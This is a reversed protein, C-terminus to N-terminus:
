ITKRSSSLINDVVEQRFTILKSRLRDEGVEERDEGVEGRDKAVRDEPWCPSKPSVRTRQQDWWCPPQSWLPINWM